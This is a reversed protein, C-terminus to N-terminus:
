PIKFVLGRMESVCFKVAAKFVEVTQDKRTGKRLTLAATKVQRLGPFLFKRHFYCRVSRSILIGGMKRYKNRYKREHVKKGAGRQCFDAACQM